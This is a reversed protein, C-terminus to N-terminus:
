KSFEVSKAWETVQAANNDANKELMAFQIIWFADDAKYVYSFYTYLRDDETSVRDYTFGLLGDGRIVEYSTLKNSEIVMDMYEALTCDGFGELLSFEEKIALVAVNKSDYVATYGSINTKRFEETLTIDMGDSSFTKPDDSGGGLIKGSILVGLIIGIITAVILVRTGKKGNAMRAAVVEPTDNNDFMFANGNAPNFRNKGSLFVDDQGEPLRYFENCYDKSINDAIVFVRLANESVAFTKSEGNKLDGLKRCPIGKIHIEGSVDEVYVKLKVACGVFTKTRTITLNRMKTRRLNMLRQDSKLSMIASMGRKTLNQEEYSRKSIM